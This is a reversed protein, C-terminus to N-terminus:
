PTIKGLIRAGRAGTVTPVNNTKGRVAMWAMLAFAAPEKAQPPIGFDAITKVPIPSLRERLREMLVPNLAGGGNVVVETLRAKPFIFRRYADAISAATFDALTALVDSPHRHLAPGFHEKLFEKGFTGYDLSKPPPRQFYPLSLLSTIKEQNSKGRAAMRGDEDFTKGGHTIHAVALDLLCNGPGTDFGLSKVGQGVLAVNGIGGINQLARPPGDGFLFEDLIPILPAGQGGAAMDRTRFDSVIPM